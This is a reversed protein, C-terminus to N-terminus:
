LEFDSQDYQPLVPQRSPVRRLPDYRYKRCSDYPAVVGRHQCLILTGDGSERANHCYRCAPEVFNGFLPRKGFAM